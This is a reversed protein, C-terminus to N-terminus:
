NFKGALLGEMAKFRLLSEPSLVDLLNRNATKALFSLHRIGHLVIQEEMLTAPRPRAAGESVTVAVDELRLVTGAGSRFEMRDSYVLYTLIISGDREYRWSTSHVYCYKSSVRVPGTPTDFVLNLVLDDPNLPKYTIDHRLVSYRVSTDGELTVLFIELNVKMIAKPTNPGVTEAARCEQASLCSLAILLLVGIRFRRLIRNM